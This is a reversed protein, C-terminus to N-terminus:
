ASNPLIKPLMIPLEASLNKGLEAGVWVLVLQPM